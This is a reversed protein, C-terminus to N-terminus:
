ESRPHEEPVQGAPPDKRTPLLIAPAPLPPFRVPRNQADRAADGRWVPLVAPCVRRFPSVTKTSTRLQSPFAMGPMSASFMGRSRSSGSGPMISSTHPRAGSLLPVTLKETRRTDPDPEARFAPAPVPVPACATGDCGARSQRPRQLSFRNKGAKLGQLLEHKFLGHFFTKRGNTRLHFPIEQIKQELSLIKRNRLRQDTASQASPLLLGITKQPFATQRFAFSPFNKGAHFLIGYEPPAPPRASARNSARARLSFSATGSASSSRRTRAM